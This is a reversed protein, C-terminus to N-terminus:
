LFSSPSSLLSDNSENTRGSGAFQQHKERLLLKETRESCDDDNKKKEAV